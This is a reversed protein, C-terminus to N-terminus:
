PVASITEVEITIITKKSNNPHDKIWKNTQANVKSRAITYAPYKEILELTHAETGCRNQANSLLTLSVLLLAILNKM